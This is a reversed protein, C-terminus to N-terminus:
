TRYIDTLRQLAVAKTAAVSRAEAVIATLDRTASLLQRASERSGAPSGTHHAAVSEVVARVTEIRGIADRAMRHAEHLLDALVRDTAALDAERAALAARASELADWSQGGGTM